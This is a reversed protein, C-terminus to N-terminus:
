YSHQVVEGDKVDLLGSRIKEVESKTAQFVATVIRAPKSDHDNYYTGSCNRDCFTAAQKKPRIFLHGCQPCKLQEYEAKRRPTQTSPTYRMSPLDKHIATHEEQTVVLLNAIRNDDRRGNIHHVHEDPSLKRGLHKEMVHRHEAVFKGNEDKIQKYDNM